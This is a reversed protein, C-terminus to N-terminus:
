NNSNHNFESNGLIYNFNKPCNLSKDPYWHLHDHTQFRGKSWTENFINFIEHTPGRKKLSLKLNYM